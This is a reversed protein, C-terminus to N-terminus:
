QALRLVVEAEAYFIRPLQPTKVVHFVSPFRPVCPYNAYFLGGVIEGAAYLGGIVAPGRSSLVAADDGRM